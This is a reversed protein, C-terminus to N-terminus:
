EKQLTLTFSGGLKKLASEVSDISASDKTLDVFRAAESHAIELKRAVDAIKLGNEIMFNWFLIKAQVKAPIYYAIEGKRIKSPLPIAKRKHRYEIMMVGPIFSKAFEKAEQESEHVSVFDPLDRCSVEFRGENLKQIKIRYYM